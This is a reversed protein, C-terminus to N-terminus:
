ARWPTPAAVDDPVPPTNVTVGAGFEYIDLLPMNHQMLWDMRMESGYVRLAIEDFHEGRRTLTTNQM